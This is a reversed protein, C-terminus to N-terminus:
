DTSEGYGGFPRWRFRNRFQRILGVLRESFGGALRGLLAWVRWGALRRIRLYKGSVVMGQPGTIGVCVRNHIQVAPLIATASREVNERCDM